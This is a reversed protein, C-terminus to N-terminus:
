SPEDRVVDTLELGLQDPDIVDRVVDVAECNEEPRLDALFDSLERAVRHGEFHRIIPEYIRRFETYEACHRNILDRPTDDETGGWNGPTRDSLADIYGGEREFVTYLVTHMRRIANALAGEYRAYPNTSSHEGRALLAALWTLFPHPAIYAFALLAPEEFDPNEAFAALAATVPSKRDFDAWGNYSGGHLTHLADLGPVPGSDVHFPYDRHLRLLSRVVEPDRALATRAPEWDGDHLEAVADSAELRVDPDPDKLGARVAALLLYADASKPNKIAFISKILLQRLRPEGEAELLYSARQVLPRSNLQALFWELAGRGVETAVAQSLAAAVEEDAKGSLSGWRCAWYAIVYDRERQVYFDLGDAPVADEAGPATRTDRQGNHVLLAAELLGDPVGDRLAIGWRELLRSVSAPAGHATLEEAASVLMARGIAPNRLRARVLKSEIHKELFVPDDLTVPLTGGSCVLMASRLLLPDYIPQHTRPVRVDLAIAYRGYARLREDEDYNGVSVVSSSKSLRHTRHELLALDHLPIGAADAVFAPDGVGDTLLRRAAVNTMSIVFTVDASAIREAAADISRAADVAAENWGDVFIVLRRGAARAVRALRGAALAESGIGQGLTWEFDARLEAALGGVAIAPYFLTPEGQELRREVSHCVLNTKGVQPPGVVLVVRRGEAILADLRRQAKPREVYLDPIYKRGSRPDPDRLKRMRVDVQARCFGALNGPHLSVLRELAEARLDSHEGTVCFGGRAHPHDKPVAEGDIEAGTISDFIRARNGDTLVVFPAIEGRCLRAYSLGQDRAEDDLPEGPAKVEVVLLNRGDVHRVLVDARPHLVGGAKKEKPGVRWVNHGVRLEFSQEVQIDASTFGHSALWSLVVKSRVDEESKLVSDKTM